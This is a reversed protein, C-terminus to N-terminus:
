IIICVYMESKYTPVAYVNETEPLGNELIEAAAHM